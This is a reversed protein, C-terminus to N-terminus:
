RFKNIFYLVLSVILSLIISTTLPFFFTFKGRQDSLRRSAQGFVSVESHCADRSRYCRPRCRDSHHGQCIVPSCGVVGCFFGANERAHRANGAADRDRRDDTNWSFSQRQFGPPLQQKITQEIVRPGAFGILSKPEAIIIDGLMAFSATVGGFTPDTLV